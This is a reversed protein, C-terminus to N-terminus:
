LPEQLLWLVEPGQGLKAAWGGAEPPVDRGTERPSGVRGRASLLLFRAQPVWFQSSSSLACPPSRSWSVGVESLGKSRCLGARARGPGAARHAPGGHLSRAEKSWM